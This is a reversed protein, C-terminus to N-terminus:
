IMVKRFVISIILVFISAGLVEIAIEGVLQDQYAVVLYLLGAVFLTLFGIWWNLKLKLRAANKVDIRYGM